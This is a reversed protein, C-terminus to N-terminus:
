RSAGSFGDAHPFQDMTNRPLHMISLNGITQEHEMFAVNAMTNPRVMKEESSLCRVNIVLHPFISMGTAIVM